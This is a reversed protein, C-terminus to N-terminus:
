IPRCLKEKHAPLTLYFCALIRHADARCYLHVYGTHEPASDPPPVRRHLAHQGVRHVAIRRGAALHYVTSAGYSAYLFACSAMSGIILVYLISPPRLKRPIGKWLYLLLVTAYAASVLVLLLFVFVSPAHPLAILFSVIYFVHGVSFAAIGAPFAWRHTTLLLFFDGTFGFFIAAVVLPSVTNAFLIYCVALLPMLACKTVRRLMLRRRKRVCLHTRRRRCPVARCVCIEINTGGFEVATDLIVYALRDSFANSLYFSLAVPPPRM